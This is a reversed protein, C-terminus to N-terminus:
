ASLGWSTSARWAPAAAAIVISGAASMARARWLSSTAVMRANWAASPRARADDQEDVAPSPSAAITSDSSSPADLDGLAVGDREDRGVGGDRRRGGSGSMRGVGAVAIWMSM